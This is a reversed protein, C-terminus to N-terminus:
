IKRKFDYRKIIFFCRIKNYCRSWLNQKFVFVLYVFFFFRKIKNKHTQKYINYRLAFYHERRWSEVYAKPFIDSFATQMLLAGNEIIKNSIDANNTIAMSYSSALKRYCTVPEPIFCAGFKLALVQYVFNDQFSYLEPKYGGCSRLYDLKVIASHGSIWNGQKLFIERVKEPPFFCPKGSCVMPITIFNTKKSKKDIIFSCGSSIGAQPYQAILNMSKQFFGPLINDDASTTYLYNGSALDVLRNFSAAVGLNTQNKVFRVFPYKDAFGRIIELSDDTSADDCILVEFPRWSQEVITTLAEKIYQGHNYNAMIVSLKLSKM